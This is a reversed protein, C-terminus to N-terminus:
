LDDILEAADSLAEQVTKNGALAANINGSLIDSIKTYNILAPRHIGTDMMRRLRDLDSDPRCYSQDAYIDTRIPLYGGYEFLIEQAERSYAFRAFESAAEKEPSDKTIMLNWGGFVTASERGKFHPLPAMELNDVKASDDPYVSINSTFSPWGRIFPIDNSLAFRYSDNETFDTVVNPTMRHKHILDVMLQCSETAEQSALLFQGDQFIRGNNGGLIEIYNCILGEYGAGQFMYFPKGTFHSDYIEFLEEWTISEMLRQRIHEYGPLEELMDQRYYMIGVDIYLPTGVLEGQYYCTSLAHPLLKDLDAKPIYSGLPEAWKTFRPLWILDVAFIDIRSNKGRLARAILEKRENTNFITFPLDIPIVEIKGKYRQNFRDIIMQHAVSINDAFYIRHVEGTLPRNNSVPFTYLILILLIAALVLYIAFQYQRSFRKPFNLNLM